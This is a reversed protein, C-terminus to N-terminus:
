FNVFPGPTQKHQSGCVEALCLKRVPIEPHQLGAKLENPFQTLVLEAPVPALLKNLVDCCLEIEERLFVGCIMIIIIVKIHCFVITINLSIYKSHVYALTCYEWYM